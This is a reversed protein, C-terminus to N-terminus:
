IRWVCLSSRKPPPPWWPRLAVRWRIRRLPAPIVLACLALLGLAASAASSSSPLTAQCAQDTTFGPHGPAQPSVPGHSPDADATQVAARPTVGVAKDTCVGFIGTHMAGVALAVVAILVWRWAGAPNDHHVDLPKM